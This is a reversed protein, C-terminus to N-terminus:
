KKIIQDYNFQVAYGMKSFYDRAENENRYTAMFFDGGWAGLSKISYAYDSFTSMKIQELSLIESLLKESQNILIELEEIERCAAVESIIQNMEDIEGDTIDVEEFRLVENKSKQKKGSYVFLLKSTISNALKIGVTSNTEKEFVIPSHATACAVDYGSGGFSDKLLEYPDTKSWQSLLSILTSSSGFGWELPFDAKLHIDMGDSFLSPKESKIRKLLHLLSSAIKTDTTERLELKDSFQASFWEVDKVISLWNIKGSANPTVNMQQGFRLPIALSKAGRLVLYEGFLLLKGSAHYDM